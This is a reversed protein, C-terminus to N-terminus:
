KTLPESWVINRVEGFFDQIASEKFLRFPRATAYMISGDKPDHKLGACHGVEHWIVSDVYDERIQKFLETSLAIRCTRDERYTIGATLPENPWPDHQELTLPLANPSDEGDILILAKDDRANLRRLSELVVKSNADDFHNMAVMKAPWSPPKAGCGSLVAALFVWKTVSWLLRM